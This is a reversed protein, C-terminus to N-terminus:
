PRGHRVRVDGIMQTAIGAESIYASWIVFLEPADFVIERSRRRRRVACVCRFIFFNILALCNWFEHHAAWYAKWWVLILSRPTLLFRFLSPDLRAASIDVAPFKWCPVSQTSYTRDLTWILRPRRWPRRIHSVQQVCDNVAAAPFSGHPVRSLLPSPNWICCRRSVTVDM